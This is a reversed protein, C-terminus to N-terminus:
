NIKANYIVRENLKQISRFNNNRRKTFYNLQKANAPQVKKFVVWNVAENCHPTTLSGEYYYAKRGAVENLFRTM